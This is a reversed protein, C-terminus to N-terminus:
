EHTKIDALFRELESKPILIRGTGALKKIKGSYLLRYAFTKTRGFQAAFEAPTLVPREPSFASPISHTPKM